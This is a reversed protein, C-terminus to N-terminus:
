THLQLANLEHYTCVCHGRFISIDLCRAHKTKLQHLAIHTQFPMAHSHRDVRYAGPNVCYVDQYLYNNKELIRYIFTNIANQVCTKAHQCEYMNPKILKRIIPQQLRGRTMYHLGSPNDFMVLLISM